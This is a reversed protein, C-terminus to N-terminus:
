SASRSDVDVGLERLIFALRDTLAEIKISLPQVPM